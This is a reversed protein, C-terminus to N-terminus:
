RQCRGRPHWTAQHSIVGAGAPVRWPPLLSVIADGGTAIASLTGQGIEYPAPYPIAVRVPAGALNFTPSIYNGSRLRITIPQESKARTLSVWALPQPCGTQGQKFQAQFSRSGGMTNLAQAIEQDDVQALELKEGASGETNATGIESNFLFWSLTGFLLATLISAWLGPVDSENVAQTHGPAPQQHDFVGGCYNVLRHNDV